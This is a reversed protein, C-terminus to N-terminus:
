KQVKQLKCNAVEWLTREKDLHMETLVEEGVDKIPNGNTAWLQLCIKHNNQAWQEINWIIIVFKLWM